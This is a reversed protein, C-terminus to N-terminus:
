RCLEDDWQLTQINMLMTRSANTVDTYHRGGKIGGTLNWLLWSDVTGFMCRGAATEERVTAVNDILWRLKVASFYTSLPLGCLRQM